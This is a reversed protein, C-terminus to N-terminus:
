SLEAKIKTSIISIILMINFLVVMHETFKPMIKALQFETAKKM